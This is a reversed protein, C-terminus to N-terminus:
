GRAETLSDKIEQASKNVEKQTDSMEERLKKLDVGFLLLGVVLMVSLVSGAFKGFRVLDRDLVYTVRGSLPEPASPTGPLAVLVSQCYRCKLADDKIEERCFPCIKM